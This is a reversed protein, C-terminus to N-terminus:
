IENWVREKKDYILVKKSVALTVGTCEVKDKVGCCNNEEELEAEADDEYKFIASRQIGKAYEYDNVGNNMYVAYYENGKPLVTIENITIEEKDNFLFADELQRADLSNVANKLYSTDYSIAPFGEARDGLYIIEDDVCIAFLTEQEKPQPISINLTNIIKEFNGVVLELRTILNELKENAEM